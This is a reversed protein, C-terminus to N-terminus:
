IIILQFVGSCNVMPIFQHIDVMRMKYFVIRIFCIECVMHDIVNNRLM